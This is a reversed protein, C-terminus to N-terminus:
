CYPDKKWKQISNVINTFYQDEQIASLSRMWNFENSLKFILVKARGESPIADCVLVGSGHYIEFSRKSVRIYALGGLMKAVVEKEQGSKHLIKIKVPIFQLKNVKLRWYRKRTERAHAEASADRVLAAQRTAEDSRNFLTQKALAQGVPDYYTADPFLGVLYTLAAYRSRFSAPHYKKYRQGNKKNITYIKYVLQARCGTSGFLRLFYVKKGYECLKLQGKNNLFDEITKTLLKKLAKKEPKSLPPRINYIRGFM